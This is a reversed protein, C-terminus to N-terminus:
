VDLDEERFAGGAEAIVKKVKRESVDLLKRATKLAKVGDEFLV